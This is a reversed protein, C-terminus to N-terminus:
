KGGDGLKAQDPSDGDGMADLRARSRRQRESQRALMRWTDAMRLIMQRQEESIATQALLDCEEAHRLYDSYTKV